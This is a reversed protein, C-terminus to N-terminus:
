AGAEGGPVHRVIEPIRGALLREQATYWREADDPSFTRVISGREVITTLLPRGPLLATRMPAIIDRVGVGDDRTEIQRYVQLSGAVGPRRIAGAVLGPNANPFDRPSAPRLFLVPEGAFLVTGPEPAIMDGTFGRELLAHAFPAPDPARTQDAPALWLEGLDTAAELALRADRILEDLKEPLPTGRWARHITEASERLLIAGRDLGLAREEPELDGIESLSFVVSQLTITPPISARWAEGQADKPLALGAQALQTWKALLLAWTM